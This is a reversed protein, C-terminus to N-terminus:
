LTLKPVDEDDKAQYWLEKRNPFFTKSKTILMM